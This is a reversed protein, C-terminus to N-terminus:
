NVGGEDEENDISTFTPIISRKSADISLIVESIYCKSTFGYESMVDVIDGVNFDVLYKYGTESDVTGDYLQSRKLKDMEKKAKDKIIGLYEKNGVSITYPSSDDKYDYQSISSADIYVEKRDFGRLNINLDDDPEIVNFMANYEDGEGGILAANKEVSISEIYNGSSLNEFSPSFIIPENVNQESTKDVRNLLRFKFKSDSFNYSVNFGLKYNKCLNSIAEYLSDGKYGIDEKLNKDTFGSVDIIEFNDIVRREPPVTVDIYGSMGDDYQKSLGQAHIINEDIITDIVTKVTNHIEQAENEWEKFERVNLVIRRDLLIRIDRGTMKIKSTGDSDKSVEVTEIVMLTAEDLTKDYFEDCLVYEGLELITNFGDFYPFNMEFDGCEDFKSNWIASEYNEIVYVQHMQKDLIYFQM